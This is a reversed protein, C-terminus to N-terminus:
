RYARGGNWLDFTVCDVFDNLLNDYVVINIGRRNLGREVGDIKISAFNGLNWSESALEVSHGNVQGSWALHTDQIREFIIQGGDIVALYGTLTAADLEPTLGISKFQATLEPFTNAGLSDRAAMYITYHPNQLKKLYSTWDTETALFYSAKDQQYVQWDDNWSDYASDGCHDPLFYNDSLYQGLHRSLKTAGFDNLHGQNVFDTELNFGVEEMLDLYDIFPVQYEEAWSCVMDHYDKRWEQMPTKIWLLETGSQRCKEVIDAVYNKTEALVPENYTVSDYYKSFDVPVTRYHTGYGHYSKAGHYYSVKQDLVFDNESLEQWRDHYRLIPFAYSLLSDYEIGFHFQENHEKIAWATSLKGPSLPLPDLWWRSQEEIGGMGNSMMFYFVDIVIVKPAYTKIAEDVYLATAEIRANPAAFDYSTFGQEQFILLPNINYYVQSSGIFVVEPPESEQYFLRMRAYSNSDRWLKDPFVAQVNQLLLFFVLTFCVTGVM